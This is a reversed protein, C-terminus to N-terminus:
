PTAWHLTDYVPTNRFFGNDDTEGANYELVLVTQTKLVKWTYSRNSEEGYYLYNFGGYQPEGTNNTFFLKFSGPMIKSDKVNNKITYNISYSYYGESETVTYSNLTVTLGSTSSM